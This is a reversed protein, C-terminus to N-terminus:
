IAEQLIVRTFEKICKNKKCKEQCMKRQEICKIYKKKNCNKQCM